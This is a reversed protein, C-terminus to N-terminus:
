IIKKGTGFLMFVIWGLFTILATLNFVASWSKTAELIHGAVYVGVFGPIAGATNMLGFVSGAHNPAIDQPNVLIGSHHFAICSIAFGMCIVALIYNDAYSITVLSVSAGCLAVTEILKRVFTVSYGKAILYDALWGSFISSPISVLWPVVNFVWGKAGPFNDHFYTPLWSLLVFFANTETMHGFIISWFAPKKFLVMWPVSSEVAAKELQTDKKKEEVQIRIFRRKNQRTVMYCQMLLCWVLSISGVLVFTARWGYTDLILSGLSGCLLTGMNSGTCVFSYTFTREKESVNRSVLSTIAPYHVGQCVGILMRVFAMVFLMSSSGYMLPLCPTLLTFIAWGAAAVTMVKDGGRKDSLRGGILQTMCYGWFFVSLVTGSQSKNWGMEKSIAVICLPLVTRCSYCFACGIVLVGMWVRREFRSWYRLSQSETDVLPVKFSMGVDHDKTISGSMEADSESDSSM